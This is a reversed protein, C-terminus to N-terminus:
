SSSFDTILNYVFYGTGDIGPFDAGALCETEHGDAQYRYLVFVWIQRRRAQRRSPNRTRTKRVVSLVNEILPPKRHLSGIWATLNQQKSEVNECSVTKRIPCEGIESHYKM